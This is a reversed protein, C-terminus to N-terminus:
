CECFKSFHKYYGDKRCKNKWKNAKPPIKYIIAEIQPKLLSKFM